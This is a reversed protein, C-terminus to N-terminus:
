VKIQFEIAPHDSFGRHVVFNSIEVGRAFVHDLTRTQDYAAGKWQKFGHVRMFEFVAAMREETLTNFDGALVVPIGESRTRFLMPELLALQRTLPKVKRLPWGNHGHISVVVLRAASEDIGKLEAVSMSKPTRRLFERDSTLIGEFAVGDCLGHRVLVATGSPRRKFLTKFATTEYAFFTQFDYYTQDFLVEQLLAVDFGGEALFDAQAKDMRKAMNMVLIKM